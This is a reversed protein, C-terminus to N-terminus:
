KLHKDAFDLYQQWDYRTVDHKGPRIHYGIQAFVPQGVAPMTNVPLGATGLLRYVSDAAKATMFEGAPDANADEEASAIYVPRPAILSVVMHQDFPLCSDKDIYQRFNACFWHPFVTCLRRINEGTIHHFLKAGGAGSENSIVMSFREDNAGAWLAAKGLRSWGFVAVRMVDINKDTELYDMARSLGWAWAAITAFNDGRNELEPYLAQVGNKFGDDYDPDIDGRYATILAYGRSLITAIPWRSTDTGRSAETARNNVVGKDNADMWSTSVVIATDTSVAQNGYFNLGLIAPVKKGAGNPLYMLLHMAPGDVSGNFYVTVQKRTAIGNLAHKNTETVEFRLNAPRGPSVGYMERSFVTLLEQRRARWQKVTTVPTGNNMVLASPLVCSPPLTQAISSPVIFWLGCLLLGQQLIYSLIKMPFSKFQPRKCVYYLVIIGQM